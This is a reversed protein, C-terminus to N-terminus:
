AGIDGLDKLLVVKDRLHAPWKLDKYQPLHLIGKLEIAAASPNEDIRKQLAKPSLLTGVLKKDKGELTEFLYSLYKFSWRGEPVSLEDNFNFTGGISEPAGILSELPNSWCYFDEGVAKPSGELTKLNNRQCDFTGGVSQPAGELSKLRNNLCYFDGSVHGFKIGNFSELEEHACTFEGDVDVLVIVILATDAIQTQM